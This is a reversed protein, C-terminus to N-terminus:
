NKDSVMSNYLKTIDDTDEGEGTYGQEFAYMKHGAANQRAKDMEIQKKMCLDRVASQAEAEGCWESTKPDCCETFEGKDACEMVENICAEDIQEAQSRYRNIEELQAKAANKAAQVRRKNEAEVMANIKAEKAANDANLKENQETLVKNEAVVASLLRETMGNVDLETGDELAASVRVTEFNDPKIEEDLSALKAKVIEGTKAALVLLISQDDEEENQVASLVIYGKVKNELAKIQTKTLNKAMHKVGKHENKPKVTKEQLSAARLKLETFRGSLAQLAKIRADAVAPQVHEGLITTGLIEYRIEVETQGEMRSETVLTEISVEMGRGQKANRRIKEVLERAYWTWLKGRGVVWTNGDREVLRIEGPDESLAGVIREATADLFSPVLEGSAEDPVMRFNHGDGVQSGVYATLIPTGAFKPLHERLNEYRWGNRNVKDNLLWLEVDYNLSPESELFRLEGHFSRYERNM